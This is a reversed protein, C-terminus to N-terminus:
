SKGKLRERRVSPSRSSPTISGSLLLNGSSHQLMSSNLMTRPTLEGRPLDGSSHQMIPSNLFGRPTLDGRRLDGNWTCVSGNDSKVRLPRFEISHSPETMSIQITPNESKRVGSGDRVTGTTPDSAANEQRDEGEVIDQLDKAESLKRRLRAICILGSVLVFALTISLATLATTVHFLEIQVKELGNHYKKESVLFGDDTRPLECREGEYTKPCECSTIGNPLIRCIGEHMCINLNDCTKHTQAVPGIVEVRTSAFKLEGAKNQVRCKYNGPHIQSAKNFTLISADKTQVNLVLSVRLDTVIRREDKFWQVDVVPTSSEVKCELRKIQGQFFVVREPLTVRMGCSRPDEGHLACLHNWITKRFRKKSSLVPPEIFLFTSNQSSVFDLMLIYSVGWQLREFCDRFRTGSM